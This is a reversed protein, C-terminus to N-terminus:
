HKGSLYMPVYLSSNFPQHFYRVITRSHFHDFGTSRPFPLRHLSHIAATGPLILWNRFLVRAGFSFFQYAASHSNGTPRCPPARPANAGEGNKPAVKQNLCPPPFGVSSVLFSDISTSKGKFTSSKWVIGLRLQFYM